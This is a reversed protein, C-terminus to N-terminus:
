GRRAARMDHQRDARNGDIEVMKSTVILVSAPLGTSQVITDISQSLSVEAGLRRLQIGGVFAVIAGVLINVLAVMPLAAASTAYILNLLDGARTRVKGRLTPAARLVAEGALTAFAAGDSWRALAWDGVREVVGIHARMAGANRPETRLLALLRRTAAPLGPEDFDVRHVALCPASERIPRAKM